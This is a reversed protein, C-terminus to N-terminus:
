SASWSASFRHFAESSIVLALNRVAQVIFVVKRIDKEIIFKNPMNYLAYLEIDHM